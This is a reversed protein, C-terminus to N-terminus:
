YPIEEPFDCGPEWRNPYDGIQPQQPPNGNEPPYYPGANQPTPYGANQVNGGGDRSQQPPNGNEPPYYPGANQPTPYGALQVNGGGDRSQADYGAGQSQQLGGTRQQHVQVGSATVVVRSYKQGDKEWRKQLLSGAVTVPTGKSIRASLREAQAGWTEVEIYSVEEQWQQNVLRAKCSAISFGLFATGSPTRKLTPNQTVRGNICVSNIDSAM